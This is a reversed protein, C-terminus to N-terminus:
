WLDDNIEKDKDVFFEYDDPLTNGEPMIRKYDVPINTNVKLYVFTGQWYNGKCVSLSGELTHSYHNGSYIIMEGGNEKIFESTAFLGFGMGESNTVGKQTCLELSQEETLTKFKSNPHQTLANHIGVGTDCIILRIENSSKFLQSCCWGNGSYKVPLASHNVVNDMIECLCYNLLQQVDKVVDINTILVRRIDTSVADWNDKDYHIIETFKGASPKRKFNEEYELGLLKFFNVRSAYQTKADNYNCHVNGTVLIGRERLHVVTTTVLVLFDSYLMKYYTNLYVQFDVTDELSANFAPSLAEVLQPHSTYNKFDININIVAM